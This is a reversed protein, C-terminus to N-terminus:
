KSSSTKFDKNLSNVTRQMSKGQMNNAIEMAKATQESTATVVNNHGDGALGGTISSPFSHGHGDGDNYCLNSKYIM